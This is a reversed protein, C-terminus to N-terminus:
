AVGDIISRLGYNFADDGLPAVEGARVGARVLEARNQEEAVAGLVYFLLTRAAWAAQQPRLTAAFADTLWRLPRCGDPDLALAFSVVEAGDRVALLATRIERAAVVPDKAADVAPVAAFILGAVSALLEQKSAVHWYLAGPVVGLDAALRRMTLSALGHDRLIAFAHELVEQRDLAM